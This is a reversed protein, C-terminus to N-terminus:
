DDPEDNIVELIYFVKGGHDRLLRVKQGATMSNKHNGIVLEPPLTLKDSIRIGDGTVTGTMICCLKANNIYNQVIAKIENIM